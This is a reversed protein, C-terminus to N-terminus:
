CKTVAGKIEVLHVLHGQAYNKKKKWLLMLTLTLASIDRPAREPTPGSEVTKARAQGRWGKLPPMREDGNGQM